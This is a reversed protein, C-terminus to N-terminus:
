PGQQQSRWCQGLWSGPADTVGPAALGLGACRSTGTEQHVQLSWACIGSSSLLQPGAPVSGAKTDEGPMGPFLLTAAARRWAGPCFPVLKWPQMRFRYMLLSSCSKRMTGMCVPMRGPQSGQWLFTHACPVHWGLLWDPEVQAHSSPQAPGRQSWLVLSGHRPFLYASGARPWDWLCLGLASPPCLAPPPLSCQVPLGDEWFRM